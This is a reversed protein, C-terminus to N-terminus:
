STRVFVFDRLLVNRLVNLCCLHVLDTSSMFLNHQSEATNLGASQIEVTLPMETHNILYGGLLFCEGV